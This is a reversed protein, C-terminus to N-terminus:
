ESASTTFREPIAYSSLNKIILYLYLHEGLTEGDNWEPCKNVIPNTM